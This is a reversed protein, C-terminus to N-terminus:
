RILPNRFAYPARVTIRDREGIITPPVPGYPGGRGVASTVQRDFKKFGSSKEVVVQGVRGDRFLTFRVIVEGQDFNLALEEPFEILGDM